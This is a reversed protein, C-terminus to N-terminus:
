NENIERLTEQLATDNPIGRRQKNRFNSYARRCKKTQRCIISERRARLMPKGCVACSPRIEDRVIKLAERASYGEERLDAIRDRYRVKVSSCYKCHTGRKYERGCKPCVLTVSCPVCWGTKENIDSVLNGCKPCLEAVTQL